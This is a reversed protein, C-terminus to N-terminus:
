KNHTDCCSKISDIKYRQKLTKLMNASTEYPCVHSVFQHSNKVRENFCISLTAFKSLEYNKVIICSSIILINKSDLSIIPLSRPNRM